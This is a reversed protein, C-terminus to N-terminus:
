QEITPGVILGIFCVFHNLVFIMYSYMEYWVLIADLGKNEFRLKLFAKPPDSNPLTQVLKSLRGQYIDGEIFQETAFGHYGNQQETPLRENTTPTRYIKILSM